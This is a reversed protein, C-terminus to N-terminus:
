RNSCCQLLPSIAGEKSEPSHALVAIINGPSHTELVVLEATGRGNIKGARFIGMEFCVLSQSQLLTIFHIYM